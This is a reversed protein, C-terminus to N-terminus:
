GINKALDTQGDTVPRAHKFTQSRRNIAELTIWRRKSRFREGFVHGKERPNAGIMEREQPASVVRKVCNAAPQGRNRFTAKSDEAVSGSARNVLCILGAQGRFNTREQSFGIQQDDGLCALARKDMAAHMHVVDADLQKFFVSM